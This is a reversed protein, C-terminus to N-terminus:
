AIVRVGEEAWEQDVDVDGGAWEERTLCEVSEIRTGTVEVRLCYRANEPATPAGTESTAETQAAALLPSTAGILIFAGLLERYAM